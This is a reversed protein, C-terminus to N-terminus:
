VIDHDQVNRWELQEQVFSLTGPSLAGIGAMQALSGDGEENLQTEQFYTELGDMYEYGGSGQQHRPVVMPQFHPITPTTPSSHASTAFSHRRIGEIAAPPRGGSNFFRWVAEIWVARQAPDNLNIKDLFMPDFLSPSLTFSPFGKQLPSAGRARIPSRAGFKSGKSSDSSKPAPPMTVFSNPTVPASTESVVETNTETREPRCRM